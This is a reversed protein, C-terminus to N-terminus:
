GRTWSGEMGAGRGKDGTGRGGREDLGGRKCSGEGGAGKVELERGGAGRM